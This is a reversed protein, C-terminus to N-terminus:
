GAAPVPTHLQLLTCGAPGGAIPHVAGPPIHAYSGATLRRGAVSAEGSVVWIHHHAGLHPHGPTTAGADYAILAHVMGDSRWLEKARVGPCDTVPTWALQEVEGPDLTTFIDLAGHAFRTATSEM